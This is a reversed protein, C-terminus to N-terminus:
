DQLEIGLGTLRTAAQASPAEDDLHDKGLLISLPPCVRHDKERDVFDYSTGAGEFKWAACTWSPFGGHERKSINGRPSWLLGDIFASKPIRYAFGEPVIDRELRALLAGFAAIADEDYSIERFVYMSLYWRFLHMTGGRKLERKMRTDSIIHSRILEIDYMRYNFRQFHKPDDLLALITEEPSDETCFMTNCHFYVQHQSFFICRRSFLWEQFTWGRTSWKSHQIQSKLSPCRSLLKVPGFEVVLQANRVTKLGQLVPIQLAATAGLAVITAFAQEYIYDTLPLQAKQKGPVKQNICVADAWLFPMAHPITKSINTPLESSQVREHSKVGSWTYSLALYRLGAKYPVLRRNRVDILAIIKLKEINGDSRCRERGKDCKDLWFKILTYDPSGCAPRVAALGAGRSDCIKNFTHTEKRSELPQRSDYREVDEFGADFISNQEIEPCPTPPNTNLYMRSASPVGNEDKPAHKYFGTKHKLLTCKVRRDIQGTKPAASDNKKRSFLGMIFVDIRSLLPYNAM